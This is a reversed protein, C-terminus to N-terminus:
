RALHERQLSRLRAGARQPAPILDKRAATLGTHVPHVAEAVRRGVGGAPPLPGAWLPQIETPSLTGPWSM